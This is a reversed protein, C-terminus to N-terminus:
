YLYYITMNFRYDSSFNVHSIEFCLYSIVAANQDIVVAVRPRQQRPAEVVALGDGFGVAAGDEGDGSYVRVGPLAVILRDVVDPQARALRDRLFSRHFLADRPTERFFSRIGHAYWSSARLLRRLM